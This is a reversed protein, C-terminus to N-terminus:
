AKSVAPRLCLCVSLIHARYEPINKMGRHILDGFM